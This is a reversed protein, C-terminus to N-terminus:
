AWSLIAGTLCCQPCMSQICSQEHILHLEPLLEQLLFDSCFLLEAGSSPSATLVPSTPAPTPAAM